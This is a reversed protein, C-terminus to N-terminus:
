RIYAAMYGRINESLRADLEKMMAEVMEYWIQDKQNLTVDEPVSQVRTAKAEASSLIMGRADRITLEVALQSNYRASQETKFMGTFGKDTKLDTETVPADLVRFEARLPGGVAVLRDRAWIRAAAEPSFNMLHEVNPAALPAKYSSVVDVQSVALRFQGLHAFSMSPQSKPPPTTECAALALPLSIAALALLARRTIM